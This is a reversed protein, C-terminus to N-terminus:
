LTHALVQGLVRSQKMYLLGADYGSHIWPSM